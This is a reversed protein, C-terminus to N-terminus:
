AHISETLISAGVSTRFATIVRDFGGPQRIARPTLNAYRVLMGRFASESSFGLQAAVAAVPRKSSELVAAAFLLRGWGITQEPSPLGAAHLWNRLTKRHVKFEDALEDVTLVATAAGRVCHTLIQWAIGDPFALRALAHRCLAENGGDLFERRIGSRLDDHGRLLLRDIGARGATVLLPAVTVSIRCYAIVASHPFRLRFRRLASVCAEDADATSGLHWLVVDPTIPLMADSLARVTRVLTLTTWPDLVARVHACWESETVAAIVIPRATV